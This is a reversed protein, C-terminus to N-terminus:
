KEGGSLIGPILEYDFNDVAKKLADFRTAEDEPFRYRELSEVINVVSDYDFSACFESLATYAEKMDKETIVPRDDSAGDDKIDNLPELEKALERYQTLLNGIERELTETDGSEGAKELQAAFDGLKLAGIVRSTSKLAHVKITTNKIDKVNWYKEIEDANKQASDLYMKLSVM